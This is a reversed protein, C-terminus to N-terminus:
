TSHFHPPRPGCRATLASNAQWMEQRMKSPQPGFALTRVTRVWRRCRDAFEHFTLCRLYSVHVQRRWILRKISTQHIATAAVTYPPCFNQTGHAVHRCMGSGGVVRRNLSPLPGNLSPGGELSDAPSARAYKQQMCAEFCLPSQRRAPAAASPGQQISNTGLRSMHKHLPPAKNADVIDDRPQDPPPMARPLPLPLLPVTHLACSCPICSAHRSAAEDSWAGM